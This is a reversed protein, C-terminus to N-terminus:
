LSAGRAALDIFGRLWILNVAHCAPLPALTSTELTAVFKTGRRWFLDTISGDHLELLGEADSWLCDDVEASMAVPLAHASAALLPRYARRDGFAYAYCARKTLWPDQHVDLMAHPTPQEHLYKALARTENPGDFFPVWREFTQGETLADVWQARGEKVVEYRVFDNNPSVGSANYRTRHHFGPPNLCPFVTMGVNREKAYQVLEPLHELLTLPGAIEDGHFGATILLHRDGDTHAALLPYTRGAETVEDITQVQAVRTLQRFAAEYQDWTM